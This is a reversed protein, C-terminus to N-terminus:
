IASSLTQPLPCPPPCHSGHRHSRHGRLRRRMLRVWPSECSDWPSMHSAPVSRPGTCLAPFPPQAFSFSVTIISRHISPHPKQLTSTKKRHPDTPRDTPAQFTGNIRAPSHTFHTPDIAHMAVHSPNCTPTGCTHQRLEAHKAQGVAHVPQMYHSVIWCYMCVSARGLSAASRVAGQRGARRFSLFAQRHINKTRDDRVAISGCIYTRIYTHVYAHTRLIPSYAASTLRDISTPAPWQPLGAVSFLSSLLAFLPPLIWCVLM